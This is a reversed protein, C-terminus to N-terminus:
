LLSIRVEGHGVREGPANLKDTGDNFSGGGGGAGACGLSSCCGSSGGGSYGGGGGGGTQGCEVASGGGGGFGGEGTQTSPDNGLGGGGGGHPPRAAAGNTQCSYMNLSGETLWGAGAGAWHGCGGSGGSGGSGGGSPMGGGDTGVSGTVADIGSNGYNGGGGGGAAILPTLDDMDLAVFTGGGGGGLCDGSCSPGVSGEQGVLIELITGASLTFTGKMSAGLGGDAGANARGGQAGWVEIRYSGTGPVVWSQIGGVVTVNGELPTDNYASSCDGQSPGTDSTKNCNTFVFVPLECDNSCADGDNTNGDDCNEGPDVVGDGCAVVCAGAICKDASAACFSGAEDCDNGCSDAVADGCDTSVSDCETEDLATGSPCSNGCDDQTPTGCALSAPDACQDGNLGTGTGGCLAGCDDLILLSCAVTSAIPCIEDCLKIKRYSTGDCVRVAGGVSDFYMVGMASADCPAPEVTPLAGGEDDSCAWGAATNRAIQGASCPLAALLDNDGDALGAPTNLLDFFDGSKAVAALDGDLAFGNDAVFADVDDESLQTDIDDACAWALGDWKAMEGAACLLTSLIDDDGDAIDTPMDLLESWAMDPEYGLSQLTELLDEATLYDEMQSTQVFDEALFGGLSITDTATEAHDALAARLAFPASYLQQRPFMENQQNVEIGLWRNGFLMEPSMEDFLGLIIHFVGQEVLVTNHTETWLPVGGEAQDYLRFTMSIPMDCNQLGCQIPTGASDTLYGQYHIEQPVEAFATGLCLVLFILGSPIWALRWM